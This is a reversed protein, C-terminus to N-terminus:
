QPEVAQKGKTTTAGPTPKSPAPKATVPKSTAPEATASSTAAPAVTIRVPSVAIGFIRWVNAVPEFLLDFGIGVPQGPFIGKLRLRKSAPDIHPPSSLQPTMIAVASLELGSNMLSSFNASLKAPTNAAQFAPSARDRLVTFNGSQIADNLTLIATRILLVSKNADPLAAGRPKNAPPPPVPPTQKEPGANEPSETGPASGPAGAFTMAATGLLVLFSLAFPISRMGAM